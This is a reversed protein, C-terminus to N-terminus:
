HERAKPEAAGNPQHGDQVTEMSDLEAVIDQQKHERPKSKNTQYKPRKTPAGSPLPIAANAPIQNRMAELRRAEEKQKGTLLKSNFYLPYQFLSALSFKSFFLLFSNKM